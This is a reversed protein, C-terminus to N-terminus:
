TENIEEISEQYKRKYDNVINIVDGLNEIRPVKIKKRKSNRNDIMELIKSKLDQYDLNEDYSHINLNNAIEKLLIDGQALVIDTNLPSSWIYNEDNVALLLDSLNEDGYLSYSVNELREDETIDILTFMSDYNALEDNLDTFYISSFDRVVKNEREFTDFEFVNNIM